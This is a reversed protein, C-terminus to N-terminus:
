LGIIRDQHHLLFVHVDRDDHHSTASYPKNDYRLDRDRNALAGTKEARRKQAMPSSHNVITARYPQQEWIDGEGPLRKAPIGNVTEDHYKRHARANSPIGAVYGFGCEQCNPM